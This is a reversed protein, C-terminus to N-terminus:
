LSGGAVCLLRDIGLHDIRRVQAQVMDGLTVVPFSLGYPKGTAANISAPGTSGYCSGLVNSCIVFFRNTDFAKGPGICDDWWGPKTDNESHYGAAHASGSLAHVILAANSRDANLRGYTEYAVTVPGLSTGSELCMPEDTAFTFSHREVIGVSHELNM